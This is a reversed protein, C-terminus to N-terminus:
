CIPRDEEGFPFPGAAPDRCCPREKKPWPFDHQRNATAPKRNISTKKLWIDNEKFRLGAVTRWIQKISEPTNGVSAAIATTSLMFFLRGAKTPPVAKKTM